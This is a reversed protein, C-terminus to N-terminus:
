NLKDVPQLIQATHMDFWLGHLLDHRITQQGDTAHFTTQKADLEKELKMM